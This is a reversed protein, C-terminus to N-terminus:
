FLLKYYTGGMAFEDLNVKGILIVGAEKLREIVTADYSPIFEELMKSACTTRVSKTCINDKIAVLVGALPSDALGGTDIRQQVFKAQRYAEDEMITIYSNYLPEREYVANLQTRLVEIVSLEKDKIKRALRLAEMSTIDNIM